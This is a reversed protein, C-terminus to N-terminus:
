TRRKKREIKQVRESNTVVFEEAGEAELQTPDEIAQCLTVIDKKLKYTAILWRTGPEERIADKIATLSGRALRHRYRHEVEGDRYAVYIM